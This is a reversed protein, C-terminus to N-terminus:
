GKLKEDAELDFSRYDCLLEEGAAINRTAVSQARGEEDLGVNPDDSHNMFRDNDGPLIYLGSFKSYYSYVKLYRAEVPSLVSFIEPPYHVDFPPMFRSVVQGKMIPKAAFVGLGHVPSQKLTHEVILM